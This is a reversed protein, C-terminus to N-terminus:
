NPSCSLISTAKRKEFVNPVPEESDLYSLPGLSSLSTIVIGRCRSEHGLDVDPVQTLSSPYTYKHTSSAPKTDKYKTGNDAKKSSSLAVPSVQVEDSGSNRTKSNVASGCSSRTSSPGPIMSLRGKAPVANKSSTSTEISSQYETGSSVSSTTNVVTTTSSSNSTRPRSKHNKDEPPFCDANAKSKRQANVGIALALAKEIRSKKAAQTNDGMGAEKALRCGREFSQALELKSFRSDVSAFGQRMAEVALKDSRSNRAAVKKDNERLQAYLTDKFADEVKKQESVQLTLDALKKELEGIRREFFQRDRDKGALLALIADQAWAKDAKMTNVMDDMRSQVSSVMCQTESHQMDHHKKDQSINTRIAIMEAFAVSMRHSLYILICYLHALIGQVHDMDMPLRNSAHVVKFLAQRTPSSAEEYTVDSTSHSNGKSALGPDSPYTWLLVSHPLFALSTYRDVETSINQHLVHDQIAILMHAFQCLISTSSM